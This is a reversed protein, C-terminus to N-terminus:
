SYSLASFSSRESFFYLNLPSKRGNKTHHKGKKLSQTVLKKTRKNGMQWGPSKGRPKPCVAPTGIEPLLLAISEAVRGPTLHSLPKQWPLHHQAVLDKALWLEWTLIPM